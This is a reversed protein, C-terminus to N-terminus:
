DRSSAYDIIRRIKREDSKGFGNHLSTNDIFDQEKQRYFGYFTHKSFVVKCLYNKLIFKDLVAGVKEVAMLSKSWEALM